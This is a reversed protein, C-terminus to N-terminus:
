EYIIEDELEGELNEEHSYLSDDEEVLEKENRERTSEETEKLIKLSSAPLNFKESNQLVWNKSFQKLAKYNPSKVSLDKKLIKMFEVVEQFDNDFLPNIKVLETFVENEIEDITKKEEPIKIDDLKSMLFPSFIRVELVAFKELVKSRLEHINVELRSYNIEGEISFLLVPCNLDSKETALTSGKLPVGNKKLYDLVLNISEEFSTTKSIDIPKSITWFKRNPIYNPDESNGNECDLSSIRYSSDECSILFAGRKYEEFVEKVDNIELSGPNFIWREKSPFKYQKHFHGLALYDVKEHLKKLNDSLKIGPKSKDQGQIGFHMMLINLTSDEKQIAQKISDFLHTTSSGYFPLGYIHINNVTIVGGRRSKKDYPSFIIEQTEKNYEGALLIILELDALFTMWSRTSYIPNDHNGEICILPIARNLTEKSKKKFDRIIYFVKTLVRPSIKRNDFMDGAILIFDVKEKIAKELIGKFARFYDKYRQKNNYQTKGLHLDAIHIFKSQTM